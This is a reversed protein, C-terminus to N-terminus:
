EHWGGACAYLHSLLWAPKLLWILIQNMLSVSVRVFSAQTDWSYAWEDMRGENSCGVDTPCLASLNGLKVWGYSMWESFKAHYEEAQKRLHKFSLVAPGKRIKLSQMVLWKVAMECSIVTSSPNQLQPQSLSLFRLLAGNWLFGQLLSALRRWISIMHFWM